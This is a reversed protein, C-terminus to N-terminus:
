RSSNVGEPSNQGKIQGELVWTKGPLPSLRLGLHRLSSRYGKAGNERGLARSGYDMSDKCLGAPIIMQKRQVPSSISASLPQAVLGFNCLWYIPFLFKVEM